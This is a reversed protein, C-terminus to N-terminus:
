AAQGDLFYKIADAPIIRRNGAKVYRLKGANMLDYLLDRSLGLQEAAENVNYALKGVM